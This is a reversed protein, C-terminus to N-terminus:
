GLQSYALERNSEHIVAFLREEGTKRHQDLGDFIQNVIKAFDPRRLLCAQEECNLSSLLSIAARLAKHATPADLIIGLRETISQDAREIM